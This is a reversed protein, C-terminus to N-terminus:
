EVKFSYETNEEINTKDVGVSAYEGNVYFAWYKGDKDYDFTMGNVTKVYLGYAGNEGKIMGVEELAEGVTKKDTHIEFNSTKKDADTVSFKFQTAGEGIVSDNAFATPAAETSASSATTESNDQSQCGTMCFVALTLVLCVIISVAKKLNNM